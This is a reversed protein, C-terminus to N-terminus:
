TESSRASSECLKEGSPAQITSAHPLHSGLAIIMLGCSPWTFLLFVDYIICKYITNSHRWKQSSLYQRSSSSLTTSDGEGILLIIDEPM